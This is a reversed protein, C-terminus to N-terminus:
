KRGKIFFEELCLGTSRWGVHILIIKKLLAVYFVVVGNAKVVCCAHWRTM